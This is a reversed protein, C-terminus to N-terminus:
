WAKSRVRDIRHDTPETRITSLNRDSFPVRKSNKNRPQRFRKVSLRGIVSRLLSLDGHSTPSEDSPSTEKFSLTNLGGM